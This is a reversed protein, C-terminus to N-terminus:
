LSASFDVAAWKHIDLSHMISGCTQVQRAAHHCISVVPKLEQIKTYADSM